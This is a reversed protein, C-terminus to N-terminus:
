GIEIGLKKMRRWLTTREVGLLAAAKARKYHTRALADLIREREEAIGSLSAVSAPAPADQLGLFHRPLHEPRVEEDCIFSFYEVLNRLERVNGPWPYATLLTMASPSIRIPRQPSQRLLFYRLLLEIDEARERLRPIRVPVVNLRFYLDRRFTRDGIADILPRNTASIIRARLPISETGGLREFRRCELVRLLLAQHEIPIESVEDLLLTGGEALELKGRQTRFAGTFSGREHGFLESLLLGGTFTACNVAFYPEDPHPGLAHIARAVLEKGTGSDGEILVSAESDAVSEILRFMQQMSASRSIMGLFGFEREIQEASDSVDRSPRGVRRLDELLADARERERRLASQSRERETRERVEPTIDAFTEIGAIVDGRHNRLLRGNKRYIRPEPTNITVEVNDVRGQEFLRCMCKCQPCDIAELCPKGQSLHLPGQLIAQSKQNGYLIQRDPSVIVLAESMTDIVDNWFGLEDRGSAAIIDGLGEATHTREATHTGM